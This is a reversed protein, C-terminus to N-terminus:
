PLRFHSGNKIKLLGWARQDFAAKLWKITAAKDGIGASAIALNVPSVYKERSLEELEAIIARAEETKGAVGYTYALYCKALSSGASMDVGKKMAIIAEDFMSKQLYTKGLKNYAPVLRPDAGADEPVRRAGVRSPPSSQLDGRRM